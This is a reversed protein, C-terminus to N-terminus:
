YSKNENAVRMDRKLTIWDQRAKKATETRTELLSPLREYATKRSVLRAQMEKLMTDYARRANMYTSLSGQFTGLSDVLDAMRQDSSIRPM